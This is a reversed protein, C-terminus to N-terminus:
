ARASTSPRPAGGLDVTVDLTDPGASTAHLDGLRRLMALAAPNDAAVLTVIRTVGDPRHRLLAEL